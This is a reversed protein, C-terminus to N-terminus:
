DNCIYVMSDLATALIYLYEEIEVAIALIYIYIGCNGGNYGTNIYIYTYVGQHVVSAM